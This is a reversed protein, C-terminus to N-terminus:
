TLATEVTGLSVLFSFSFLFFPLSLSLSLSYVMRSRRINNLDIAASEVNRKVIVFQESERTAFRLPRGYEEETERERSKERAIKGEKRRDKRSDRRSLWSM